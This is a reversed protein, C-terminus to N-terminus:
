TFALFLIELSISFITDTRRHTLRAWCWCCQVCCAGVDRTSASSLCTMASTIDTVTDTETASNLPIAADNAGRLNDHACITFSDLFPPLTFFSSSSSRSRSTTSISLTRFRFFFPSSSTLNTKFFIRSKSSHIEAM